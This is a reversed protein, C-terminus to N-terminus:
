RLPRSPSRMLATSAAAPKLKLRSSRQNSSNNRTRKSIRRVPRGGGRRADDPRCFCEERDVVYRLPVAEGPGKAPTRALQAIKTLLQAHVQDMKEINIHTVEDHESLDFSAYHGQYGPSPMAAVWFARRCFSTSSANSM